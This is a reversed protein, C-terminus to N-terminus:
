KKNVGFWWPNKVLPAVLRILIRSVTIASFMSVLVGISLTLAFGKIISSSFWFLIMASILSTVNSDRISPWARRFGEEIATPLPKGWLVEEKTRSFILINADVAMGLTLIFGAIGALTMTVPILKFLALVIVTYLSLALVALFGPLRYFLIMFIAVLIFGVLGAFLSKEVSAAGLSAGITQQGVLNIPVPLAGANLRQSLQKAEAVGFNGSIIANGDRIPENVRPISIPQGDLFIAVPKGVNRETIAAFLTKGEDNFSLAVTPEGTNLDFQVSSNKLQKGSLGTVAWEEPPPFFDKESMTKILIHSARMELVQKGDKDVMKEEVKKIIHYGFDSKVPSKTMKGVSLKLAADEFPKVMTGTAFWGLDGGLEASGADDSIKKALEAFDAGKNLDAIAKWARTLAEANYKAMEAKQEKTLEQVANKNPNEERFELIPTEGIMKIAQSVDKVGALEVIVRWTDGSKNTQIIPEAVGFANVRREIVDRVGDLADARDEAPIKSTDAEYVLHTGGQLDLGLRFPTGKIQPIKIQDLYVVRAFVVNIKNACKNFLAPHDFAGAILFIVFFILVYLHIRGRPSSWSFFETIKKFFSKEEM